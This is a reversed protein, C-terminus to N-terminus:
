AEESERLQCIFMDTYRANYQRCLRYGKQGMVYCIECM